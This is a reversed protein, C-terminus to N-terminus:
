SRRRSGTPGASRELSARSRPRTEWATKGTTNEASDEDKQCPLKTYDNWGSHAALFEDPDLLPADFNAGHLYDQGKSILPLYMIQNPRFSVLDPIENVKKPDDALTRAMYRTIANAESGNM